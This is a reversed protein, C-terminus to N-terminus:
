NRCSSFPFLMGGPKDCLTSLAQLIASDPIESWAQSPEPFMVSPDSRPPSAM